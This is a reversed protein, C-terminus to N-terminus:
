KKVATVTTQYKFEVKKGAIKVIKPDYTRSIKYTYKNGNNKNNETIDKVTITSNCKKSVKNSKCSANFAKAAAGSPTSALVQKGVIKSNKKASGAFSVKVIEFNRPSSM